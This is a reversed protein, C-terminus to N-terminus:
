EDAGPSRDKLFDNIRRGVALFGELNSPKQIYTSPQNRIARQRDEQSSSSSLVVVPTSQTEPNSRIEELVEWGDRRPLNIDLLVLDPRMRDRTLTDIAKEGDLAHTMEFHMQAEHLAERVLRADAPNDEVILIKVAREATVPM